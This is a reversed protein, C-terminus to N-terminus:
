SARPLDGKGATYEVPSDLVLLDTPHLKPLRDYLGVHM